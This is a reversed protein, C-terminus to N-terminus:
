PEHARKRSPQPQAPGEILLMADLYVSTTEAPQAENGTREAADQTHYRVRLRERETLDEHAVAARGYTNVMEEREWVNEQKQPERAALRTLTHENLKPAECSYTITFPAYVPTSCPLSVGLEAGDLLRVQAERNTESEPYRSTAVRVVCPLPGRVHVGPTAALTETLNLDAGHLAGLLPYKHACLVGCRGDHKSLENLFLAIDSGVPSQTAPATQPEAHIEFTLVVRVNGQPLPRVAHPVDPYFLAIGGDCLNYGHTGIRLQSMGETEDYYHAICLVASGVLTGSPTDRHEAFHDGARYVLLKKPVVRVIAPVLGSSRWRERVAAIIDPHVVMDPAAFEVSRRMLNDIRSTQTQVDGFASPVCLPLLPAVFAEAQTADDLPADRVIHVRQDPTTVIPSPWPMAGPAEAQRIEAHTSFVADCISAVAATAPMAALVGQLAVGLPDDPAFILDADRDDIWAATAQVAKLVDMASALFEIAAAGDSM